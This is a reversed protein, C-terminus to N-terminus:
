VVSAGEGIAQLGFQLLDATAKHMAVLYKVISGDIWAKQSQAQQAIISKMKLFDVHEHEAHQSYGRPMSKLPEIEAFEYGSKKVKQVIKRFLPADEVIRDRIANLVKTELQYFGTAIFGGDASLHAYMLATDQRKNGSPTLLGGVHEKYPRKDKSFRVDRYMRFITQKNGSMPRKANKLKESVAELMAEFPQQLCQKIEAKHEQYWDRNNNEQLQELLEFSRKSFGPSAM